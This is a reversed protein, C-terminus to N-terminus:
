AMRLNSRSPMGPLSEQFKEDFGGGQIMFGSIIRHFVTGSYFGERTYELFNKVTIPAKEPNLEIIMEGMNTKMSVRPANDAVALCSLGGLLGIVLGRMLHRRILLM